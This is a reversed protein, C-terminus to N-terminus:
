NSIKTVSIWAKYQMPTAGSSAYSNTNYNLGSGAQGGQLDVPVVSSLTTGATNSTSTSTAAGPGQGSADRWVVQMAPLTSSTAATTIQAQLTVLYKGAPTSTGTYITVTSINATQGTFTQQYVTCPLHDYGDLCGYTNSRSAGPLWTCPSGVNAVYLNSTSDDVYFRSFSCNPVPSLNRPDVNGHMIGQAHGAVALVAALAVLYCLRKM